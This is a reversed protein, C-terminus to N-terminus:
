IIEIMQRVIQDEKEFKFNENCYTNDFIMEDIQISIGRMEEVEEPKTLNLRIKPPFLIPNETVMKFNYRFDGTFLITGM